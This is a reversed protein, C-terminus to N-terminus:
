APDKREITPEVTTPVNQIQKLAQEIGALESAQWPLCCPCPTQSYSKLGLAGGTTDEDVTLQGTEPHRHCNCGSICLGLGWGQIKVEHGNDRVTGLQFISPRRTTV